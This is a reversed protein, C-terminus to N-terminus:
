VDVALINAGLGEALVVANEISHRQTPTPYSMLPLLVDKITM